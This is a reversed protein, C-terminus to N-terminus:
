LTFLPMVHYRFLCTCWNFCTCNFNVAALIRSGLHELSSYKFLSQLVNWTLLAHYKFVAGGLDTSVHPVKFPRWVLLSKLYILVFASCACLSPWGVRNSLFWHRKGYSNGNVFRLASHCLSNLAAFANRYVIDACDLVTLFRAETLRKRTSCPFCSRNQYFLGLKRGVDKILLSLWLYHEQEKTILLISM